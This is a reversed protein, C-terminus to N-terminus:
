GVDADWCIISVARLFGPGKVVRGLRGEECFVIGHDAGVNRSDGAIRM